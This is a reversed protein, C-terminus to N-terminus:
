FFFFSFFFHSFDHSFFFILLILVFFCFLVFCFLVFCFLVFCFLYGEGDKESLPAEKFDVGPKYKNSINLRRKGPSVNDRQEQVSKGVLSGIKEEVAVQTGPLRFPSSSSSCAGVDMIKKKEKFIFPPSFLSAVLFLFQFFFSRQCFKM